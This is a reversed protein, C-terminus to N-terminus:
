RKRRIWLNHGVKTANSGNVQEELLGVEHKKLNLERTDRKWEDIARQATALEAKVKDHEARHQAIDKEIARLEQVKVLLGSSSPAAGGSLTGSPDYVDGELTVSKVGIRKDFTVAKASEKDACVFTDGFVYAMAASVDEDYGVLDLALNAKGSTVQKAMAIKQLSSRCLGVRRWRVEASMRFANIKNLPIITVRKRLRGKELLQSGVREDQVVVNYLKGGACIELATSSKHNAKDLDILTAVLGKVQSRDFNPYPDSYSFDVAALRSKIM